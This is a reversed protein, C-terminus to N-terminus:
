LLRDQEAQELSAYSLQCLVRRTLPLNPTRNGEDARYVGVGEIVLVGSRRRRPETESSPRERSPSRDLPLPAAPATCRPPTVSHSITASQLDAPSQGVYTRIRGGGHRATLRTTAAPSTVRTYSLQYLM